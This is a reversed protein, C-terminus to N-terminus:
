IWYEYTCKMVPQNYDISSILHMHYSVYDLHTPDSPLCVINFSYESMSNTNTNVNMDVFYYYIMYTPMWNPLGNWHFFTEKGIDNTSDM